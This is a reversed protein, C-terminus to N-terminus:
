NFNKKKKKKKKKEKLSRAAAVTDNSNSATHPLYAGLVVSIIAVTSKVLHYQVSTPALGLRFCSGLGFGGTTCIM